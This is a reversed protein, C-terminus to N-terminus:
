HGRARMRDIQMCCGAFVSIALAVGFRGQFALAVAGVLMAVAFLPLIWRVHAEKMSEKFRLVINSV